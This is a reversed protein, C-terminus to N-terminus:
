KDGLKVDWTHENLTVTEETREGAIIIQFKVVPLMPFYNSKGNSKEFGIVTGRTGNVLGAETELNKLLMVQAGLKLMLMQPAKTGARLQSLYPDRGDDIANFQVTKDEIQLRQLEKLNYSDVDNNTSFLKTPRIRTQSVINSSNAGSDKMMARIEDEEEEQRKLLLSEHVKRALIQNIQPTVQGQRLSNLVNLFTPDDKQRFVKDLLIVSGSPKASQLSSTMLGDRTNIDQSGFLEKWADSEFCFSTNKGVGIPPLQFFDGCLILQIGGFPVLKGRVRRGIFDLKDFLEASLMSIEDIILIETDKWRQSAYRNKAIMGYLTELNESGLGIGSWSHITLGRINCAAVGTPATIAVKSSLGLFEVVDLLVQLIYSKGTGTEM